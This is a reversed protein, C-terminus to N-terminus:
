ASASTRTILHAALVLQQQLDNPKNAFGYAPPHTADAHHPRIRDPTSTGLEGFGPRVAAWSALADFM